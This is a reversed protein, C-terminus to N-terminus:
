AGFERPKTASRQKSLRMIVEDADGGAWTGALEMISESRKGKVIKLVVDSFSEGAAKRKKLEGYAENSLSIVKTTSTHVLAHVYKLAVSSSLYADSEELLRM